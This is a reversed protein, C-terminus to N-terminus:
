ELEPTGDAFPDVLEERLRRLVRSKALYVANTSMGLELGVDTAPRGEVTTKCFADWTRQEFEARVLDLIGRTLSPESRLKSSAEDLPDAVDNATTQSDSQGMAEPQTRQRQHHDILRRQTIRRMWGRFTDGPQERRFTGISRFVGRFVEQSVDAADSPQLGSRRCWGYVMPYYLGVMRAWAAQDNAIVRRLLSSTITSPPESAGRSPVDTPIEPMRKAGDLPLGSGRVM